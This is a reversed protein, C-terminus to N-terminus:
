VREIMLAIQEKVDQMNKGFRITYIKDHSEILLASYVLFPKAWINIRTSVFTIDKKLVKINKKFLSHIYIAEDDESLIEKPYFILIGIFIMLSLSVVILVYMFIQLIEDIMSFDFRYYSLIEFMIVLSFVLFLISAILQKYSKLLLPKM